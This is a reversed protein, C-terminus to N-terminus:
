KWRLLERPEEIHADNTGADYGAAYNATASRDPPFGDAADQYGRAYEERAADKGQPDDAMGLGYERIIRRLQRKTIKM